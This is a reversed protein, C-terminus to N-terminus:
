YNEETGLATSPNSDAVYRITIEDFYTTDAARSCAFGVEGYNRAIGDGFNYGGWSSPEDTGVVWLKIQGLRSAPDTVRFRM